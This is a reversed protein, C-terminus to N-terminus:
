EADEELPEEGADALEAKLRRIRKELQEIQTQQNLVVQHLEGLQRELHTFLLELNTLRDRTPDAPAAHSSSVARTSWYASVRVDLRRRAFHLRWAVLPLVAQRKPAVSAFSM